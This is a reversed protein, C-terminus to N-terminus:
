VWRRGSLRPLVLELYALLNGGETKFGNEWLKMSKTDPCGAM